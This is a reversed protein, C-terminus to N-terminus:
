RKAKKAQAISDEIAAKILPMAPALAEACLNMLTAGANLCRIKAARLEDVPHQEPPIKPPPGPPENENTGWCM